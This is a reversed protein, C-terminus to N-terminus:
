QLYESYTVIFKIGSNRKTGELIVRKADDSKQGTTLYFGQNGVYDADEPDTVNIVRQVHQTINFHYTYDDTNLYGDYFYPSFYYDIPLREEGDKDVFTLTLQKPPPYNEIDSAVTDIQFVLEAKNISVNVSDRWGSLGGIWVRSKLGGTPQIYIKNEQKVQQDLDNVFPTGTYNHTINNVRASNETIIFARFLTDPTEKEKNEDNNYYLGLASGSYNTSTNESAHVTLLSGVDGAVPDCEVYIGKFYQLFADNSVKDLSDASILRQGLSLDIPIQIAQLITDGYTSDLKVKPTFTLEGIKQSSAMSKLDIDQKYEEDPNLSTELEYVSIHLPTLTDGYVGTYYLFLFASDVEPNSGFDPFSKIRLQAAFSTTTNGFVPDNLSGLLNYGSKSTVIGTESNAYATISDKVVVNKVNFLDTGPLIELGLDNYENCSSFGLMFLLAGAVIIEFQRIYKKM